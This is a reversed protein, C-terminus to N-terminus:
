PCASLTCLPPPKCRIGASGLPSRSSAPPGWFPSSGTRSLTHPQGPDRDWLCPFGPNAPCLRPAVQRWGRQEGAARGPGHPETAVGSAGEVQWGEGRGGAGLLSRHPHRRGGLCPLAVLGLMSALGLPCAPGPGPSWLSGPQFSGTLHQHSTPSSVSPSTSVPLLPPGM